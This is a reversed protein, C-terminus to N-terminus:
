FKLIALYIYHLIEISVLTQSLAREISKLIINVKMLQFRRRVKVGAFTIQSPQCPSCRANISSSSVKSSYIETKVCVCMDNGWQTSLVLFVSSTWKVCSHSKDGMSEIIFLIACFFNMTM